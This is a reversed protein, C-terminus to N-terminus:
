RIPVGTYQHVQPQIPADTWTLVPQQQSAAKSRIKKAPPVQVVKENSNGAVDSALRAESQSERHSNFLVEDSDCDDASEASDPDSFIEALLRQVDACLVREVAVVVLYGVTSAM